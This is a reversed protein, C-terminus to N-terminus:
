DCVMRVLRGCYGVIAILCDPLGLDLGVFGSYVLWDGFDLM